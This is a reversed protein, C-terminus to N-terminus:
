LASAQPLYPRPRTVTHIQMINGLLQYAKNQAAGEVDVHGGEMVGESEREREGGFYDWQSIPCSAHLAATRPLLKLTATVM